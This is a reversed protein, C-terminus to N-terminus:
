TCLHAGYAELAELAGERDKFCSILMSIRAGLRKVEVWPDEFIEKTERYTRYFM